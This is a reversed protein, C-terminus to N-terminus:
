ASADQAWRSRIAIERTACIARALLLNAVDCLCDSLVFGAAVMM